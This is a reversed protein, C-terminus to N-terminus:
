NSVEEGRPKQKTKKPTIMSRLLKDFEEKKVQPTKSTASAVNLSSNEKKKKAM